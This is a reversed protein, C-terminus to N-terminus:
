TCYPKTLLTLLSNCDRRRCHLQRLVRRQVTNLRLIGQLPTLLLQQEDAQAHTDKLLDKREKPKDITLLGRLSPSFPSLLASRSPPSTTTWSMYATSDSKVRSATNAHDSRWCRGHPNGPSLLPSPFLRRLSRNLRATTNDSCQGVIHQPFSLGLTNETWRAHGRASFVRGRRKRM